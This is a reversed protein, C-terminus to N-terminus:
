FFNNLCKMVGHFSDNRRRGAEILKRKIKPAHYM